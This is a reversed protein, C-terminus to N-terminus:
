IYKLLINKIDDKGNLDVRNIIYKLDEKKTRKAIYDIIELSSYVIACQLFNGIYLIDENKFLLKVIKYHKYIIAWRYSDHSGHEIRSRCTKKSRKKIWKVIKYYGNQCAFDMAYPSCGEDRHSALWKIIDLYGRTAANDMARYTAGAEHWHLWKVINLDGSCAAQDISTGFLAINRQYLWKIMKLNGNHALPSVSFNQTSLIEYFKGYIEHILKNQSLAEKFLNTCGLCNFGMTEYLWNIAEMNENEIAFICAQKSCKIGQTHFWKALYLHNHKIALDFYYTEDSREIRKGISYLFIFGQLDGERVLNINFEKYRRYSIDYITYCHLIPSSLLCIFFHKDNLHSLIDKIIYPNM